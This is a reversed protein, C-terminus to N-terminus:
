FITNSSGPTSTTSLFLGRRCLRSQQGLVSQRANGDQKACRCDGPLQPKPKPNPHPNPQLDNGDQQVCMCDGLLHLWVNVDQLNLCAASASTLRMNAKHRCNNFILRSPFSAAAPLYLLTRLTASAVCGGKCGSAGCINGQFFCGSISVSSFEVVIAGGATADATNSIFKCGQM